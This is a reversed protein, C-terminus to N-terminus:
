LRYDPRFTDLKSKIKWLHDYFEGKLKLLKNSLYNTNIEDAFFYYDHVHIEDLKSIQDYLSELKVMVSRLNIIRDRLIDEDSMKKSM